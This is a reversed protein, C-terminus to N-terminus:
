LFQINNLINEYDASLTKFFPADGELNILWRGQPGMVWRDEGRVFRSRRTGEYKLSFSPLGHFPEDSESVIRYGKKEVVRRAHKKGAATMEVPPETILDVTVTLESHQDNEAIAAGLIHDNAVAILWAEPIAVKAGAAQHIWLGGHAPADLAGAGQRSLIQVSALWAQFEPVLWPFDDAGARLTLTTVRNEVFFYVSQFQVAVGEGPDEWTIEYSNHGALTGTSKALVRSNKWRAALDQHTFAKLAEPPIDNMRRNPDIPDSGQCTILAQTGRETVQSFLPGNPFSPDLTWKAPIAFSLNADAFFIRPPQLGEVALSNGSSFFAFLLIPYLYFPTFVAKLRQLKSRDQKKCNARENRMPIM